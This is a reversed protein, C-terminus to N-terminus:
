IGSRVFIQLLVCKKELYDYDKAKLATINIVYDIEDAGNKIADETEFIKAAITTQGLPFLWLLVLMFRRVPLSLQAFNQRCRTLLLWRLHFDVAEQCLKKIDAPTAFAKLNTHDVFGGFDDLTYNKM